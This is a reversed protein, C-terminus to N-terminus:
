FAYDRILEGLGSSNFEYVLMLKCIPEIVSSQRVLNLM